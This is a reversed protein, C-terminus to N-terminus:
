FHFIFSFTTIQLHYLIVYLVDQLSLLISCSVLLNQLSAPSLIVVYFGIYQYVPTCAICWYHFMQLLFFVKRNVTTDFIISLLLNIWPPSLDTHRFSYSRSLLFQLVCVFPFVCSIHEHVLFINNLCGYEEFGDIYM